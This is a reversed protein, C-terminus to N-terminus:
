SQYYTRYAREIFTSSKDRGGSNKPHMKHCSALLFIEQISLGPMRSKHMSSARRKAEEPYSADITYETLKPLPFSVKYQM